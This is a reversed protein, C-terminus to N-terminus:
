FRPWQESCASRTKRWQQNGDSTMNASGMQLIESSCLSVRDGGGVAITFEQQSYMEFEEKLVEYM